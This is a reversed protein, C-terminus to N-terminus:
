NSLLSTRINELSTRISADYLTDGVKAIIGGILDPNISYDVLLNNLTVNNAEALSKQIQQKEEASIAVATEVSARIKGLKRDTMEQYHVCIDFFLELRNKELLLSIFNSVHSQLDMKETLSEIVPLLEKVHIVPNIFALFLEQENLSLVHAFDVLNTGFQEILGEEEGISFLARAYRKALSSNSM